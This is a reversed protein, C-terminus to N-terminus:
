AYFHKVFYCALVSLLAPNKDFFSKWNLWIAKTAGDVAAGASSEREGGGGGTNHFQPLTPPLDEISARSPLKWCKLTGGLCHQKEKWKRQLVLVVGQLNTPITGTKTGYTGTRGTHLWPWSESILM